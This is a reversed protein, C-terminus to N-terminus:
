ETMLMSCFVYQVNKDGSFSFSMTNTTDTEDASLHEIYLASTQTLHFLYPLILFM